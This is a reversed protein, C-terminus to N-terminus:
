CTHQHTHRKRKAQSFFHADYNPKVSFTRTMVFMHARSATPLNGVKHSTTKSFLRLPMSEQQPHAPCATATQSLRSVRAQGCSRVARRRARTHEPSLRLSTAGPESWRRSSRFQSAGQYVRVCRITGQLTETSATTASLASLASSRLADTSLSPLLVSPPRSLRQFTLLVFSLPCAHGDCRIFANCRNSICPILRRCRIRLAAATTTRSSKCRINECTLNGSGRNRLLM